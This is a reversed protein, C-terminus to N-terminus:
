FRDPFGKYSFNSQSLLIDLKTSEFKNMRKITKVYIKHLIFIVLRRLKEQKSGVTRLFFFFIISVPRFSFTFTYFERTSLAIVAIKDYRLNLFINEVWERIKLPTSFSLVFYSLFFSAM